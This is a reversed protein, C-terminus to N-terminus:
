ASPRTTVISPNQTSNKSTASPKETTGKHPSHKPSGSNANPHDKFFKSNLTVLAQDPQNARVQAETLRYLIERNQADALGKIKYAEAFREVALEPLHDALAQVGRQYPVISEMGEVSTPTNPAAWSFLTLLQFSIFLRAITRM